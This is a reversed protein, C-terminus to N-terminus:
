PSDARRRAHAFIRVPPVVASAKGEARSTPRNMARADSSNTGNLAVAPKCWGHPALIRERVVVARRLARMNPKRFMKTAATKACLRAWSLHEGLDDVLALDAREAEALILQLHRPRVAVALCITLARPESPSAKPDHEELLGDVFKARRIQQSPPM